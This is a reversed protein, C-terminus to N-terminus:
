DGHQFIANGIDAHGADFFHVRQVRGLPCGQNVGNLRQFGHIAQAHHDQGASPAGKTGPKIKGAHLRIACGTGAARASRQCFARMADGIIGLIRSPAPAFQRHGHDRRHVANGKTRAALNHRRRVNANHV